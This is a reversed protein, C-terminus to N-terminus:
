FNRPDNETRRYAPLGELSHLDTAINDHDTRSGTSGSSDGSQQSSGGRQRMKSVASYGVAAKPGWTATTAAAAPGAIAGAGVAAGATVAGKTTTGIIKTTMPSAYKFLKWVIVISLLPLTVAILYSLFSSDPVLASDTGEGFLLDYGKFLLAVPIPMIALPVFKMCVTRAINSVVPLNGYALAIGIPVAYILIYLMIERLFFLAQLVWMATAGVGTLFLALLPNSVTLSLLGTMANTVASVDPILAITFGDVVYLALVAIWYWTVILFAGTWASRKAKRSEYASGINFIRITHRGQVCMVLLLLSVLMIEGAVLSSHIEEWPTNSPAGFVFGGDTEPTPTGFVQATVTEYGDTLGEQFWEILKDIADEFWKIGVDSLSWALKM